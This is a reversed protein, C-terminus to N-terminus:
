LTTLTIAMIIFLIASVALYVCLALMTKTKSSGYSFWHYAISLSFGVYILMLIFFSGQFLNPLLDTVLTSDIM